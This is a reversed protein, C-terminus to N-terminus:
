IKMEGLVCELINPVARELEPSLGTGWGLDKPQIGVIVVEPSVGQLSAILLVQPLGIEHLSFKIKDAAIKIDQQAFIKVTGPNEGMEVADLFVVKPAERMLDVLALGRTGVDLVKVGEPMGLKELEHAIHVGIGDDKMLPNGAGLILLRYKISIEKGGTFNYDNM